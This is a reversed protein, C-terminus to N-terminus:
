QAADQADAGRRVWVAVSKPEEHDITLALLFWGSGAPPQPTWWKLETDSYQRHEQLGQRELWDNYSNQIEEEPLEDFDPVAPHYWQGYHDRVVPLPHVYLYPAARWELRGQPEDLSEMEDIPWGNRKLLDAINGMTHLSWEQENLQDRIDSLLAHMAPAKAMMQANNLAEERSVGNVENGAEGNHCAQGILRYPGKGGNYDLIQLPNAGVIWSSKAMPAPKQPDDSLGLIPMGNVNLMMCVTAVADVPSATSSVVSLIDTLMIILKRDAPSEADCEPNLGLAPWELATFLGRIQAPVSPNWESHSLLAHIAKALCTRTEANM